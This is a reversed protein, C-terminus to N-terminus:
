ILDECLSILGALVLDDNSNNIAEQILDSELGDSLDLAKDFGFLRVASNLLSVNNLL